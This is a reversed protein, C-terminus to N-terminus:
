QNQKSSSDTDNGDSEENNFTNKKQFKACEMKLKRPKAKGNSHKRSTRKRGGSYRRCEKIIEKYNECYKTLYYYQICQEVSKSQIVKAIRAFEKPSQIYEVLFTDREKQSWRSLISSKQNAIEDMECKGDSFHKSDTLGILLKRNFSSLLDFPKISRKESEIKSLKIQNFYSEFEFSNPKAIQLRDMKERKLRNDRLVPFNDEFISDLEEKSFRYEENVIDTRNTESGVDEYNENKKLSEIEANRRLSLIYQLVHDHTKEFSILNQQFVTGWDDSMKNNDKCALQVPLAKHVNNRNAAALKRNKIIIQDFVSLNDISEYSFDESTLVERKRKIEEIEQTLSAIDNDIGNLKGLLYKKKSEMQEFTSKPM